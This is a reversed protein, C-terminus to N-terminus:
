ARASPLTISSHQPRYRADNVLIVLIAVPVDLEVESARGASDEYGEHNQGRPAANKSLSSSFNGTCSTM